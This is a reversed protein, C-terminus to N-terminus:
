VGAYEQEMRDVREKLRDAEAQKAFAEQELREAERELRVAEQEHREAEQELRQVEMRRALAEQELREASALIQHIGCTNGANEARIEAHEVTNVVLTPAPGAMIPPLAVPAPQGAMIPPFVVPAPPGAMLPPLAVPQPVPVSNPGSVYVLGANGGQAHSLFFPQGVPPAQDPALQKMIFSGDEQQEMYFRTVAPIPRPNYSYKARKVPAPQESDSVDRGQKHRKRLTEKMCDRKHAEMADPSFVYVIPENVASAREVLGMTNWHKITTWRLNKPQNNKVWRITHLHCDDADFVDPKLIVFSQIGLFDDELDLRCRAGLEGADPAFTIRIVGQLHQILFKVYHCRSGSGLMFGHRDSRNWPLVYNNYQTGAILSRFEAEASKFANSWSQTHLGINPFQGAKVKDAWHKGKSSKKHEEQPPQSESM